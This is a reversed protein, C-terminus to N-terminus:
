SALGDRYAAELALADRQRESLRRLPAGAQISWSEVDGKVLSLAGIAAGEGVQAGPLVISGAGIIVHRGIDVDAVVKGTKFAEPVTPNTLSAGSYDDTSATIVVNFACGSFDGMRICGAGAALQVGPALHVNSGIELKGSLICFDDIRVRDGIRIREPRYIRADRSIAVDAGLAAFGMMEIEDRTLHPM